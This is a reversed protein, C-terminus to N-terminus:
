TAGLKSTVESLVAQLMGPDFPKALTKNPIADLFALAQATFAGGTMFVVRRELGPRVRALREYFLMGDGLPMMLDCLIVDFRDDRELIRLAADCGGATTVSHADSLTLSLARLLAPEDDIILLRLRPLAHAKAKPAAAPAVPSKGTHPPLLVRFTTGRDVESEVELNGGCGTVIGQCISLGLGMGERKTTFFPDFVKGLEDPAIGCGTDSIEVVARGRDDTRTSVRIRQAHPNGARIAQTANVLLNLFVQGLKGQSAVVLPMPSTSVELRARQEVQTRALAVATALAANVDVVAREESDERRFLRLDAVIRQVRQVGGEVDDLMRLLPALSAELAGAEPEQSLTQLARAVLRINEAVVMLPNNIEHGVGAALVGLAALREAEGLKREVEKEETVDRILAAARYPETAGEARIRVITAQFARRGVPLSLTYERTEPIGTRYVQATSDMLPRGIEEGLAETITRGILEQSPLALLREDTTWVDRYRCEGDFECIIGRAFASLLEVRREAARGDSAALGDEAPTDRAPRLRDM